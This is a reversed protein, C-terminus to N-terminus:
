ICVATSNQINPAQAGLLGFDTHDNDPLQAYRRRPLLMKTSHGNYFMRGYAMAWIKPAAESFIIGLSIALQWQDFAPLNFPWDFTHWLSPIWFRLKPLVVEGVVGKALGAYSAGEYLPWLQVGLALSAMLWYLVLRKFLTQALLAAELGNHVLRILQLAKQNPFIYYFPKLYFKGDMGPCTSLFCKEEAKCLMAEVDEIVIGSSVVHFDTYHKGNRRQREKVTGVSIDSVCITWGAFKWQLFPPIVLLLGFFGFACFIVPASFVAAVVFWAAFAGLVVLLFAETLENRNLYMGTGDMVVNIMIPIMPVAFPKYFIALTARAAQCLLGGKLELPQWFFYQGLSSLALLVYVIFFFANTPRSDTADSSGAEEEDAAAVISDSKNSCCHNQIFPFLVNNCFYSANFGVVAILILVYSSIPDFYANLAVPSVDTCVGEFARYSFSSSGNTPIATKARPNKQQENSALVLPAAFALVCCIVVGWYILGAHVGNICTLGKAVESMRPLVQLISSPSIDGSNGFLNWSDITTNAANIQIHISSNASAFTLLPDLTGAVMQVHSLDVHKMKAHVNLEELLQKALEETLPGEQEQLALETQDPTALYLSVKSGPREKKM